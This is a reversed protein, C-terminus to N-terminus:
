IKEKAFQIIEYLSDPLFYKRLKRIIKLMTGLLEGDRNKSTLSIDNQMFKKDIFDYFPKWDLVLDKFDVRM